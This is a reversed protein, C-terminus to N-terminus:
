AARAEDQFVSLRPDGVEVRLTEVFAILDAGTPFDVAKVTSTVTADDQSVAARIAGVMAALGEGSLRLDSGLRMSCAEQAEGVQLQSVSATAKADKMAGVMAFFDETSTQRLDLVLEAPLLRNVYEELTPVVDEPEGDDIDPGDPGTRASILAVRFREEAEIDGDVALARVLVEGGSAMAPTVVFAGTYPTGDRPNSGDTTFRIGAASPRAFLEVSRGHGVPRTTFQITIRNRWVYPDGTPHEKKPDVALFSLRLESTSFRMDQLEPDSETVSTGKAWHVRPTQGADM